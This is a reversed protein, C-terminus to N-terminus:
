LDTTLPQPKPQRCSASLVRAEERARPQSLQDCDDHFRSFSTGKWCPLNQRLFFSGPEVQEFIQFLDNEPMEYKDVLSQYIAASVANLYDQNKGKHLTVRVLPM